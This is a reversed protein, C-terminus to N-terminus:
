MNAGFCILGELALIFWKASLLTVNMWHEGVNPSSCHQILNLDSIYNVKFPFLFCCTKATKGMNGLSFSRKTKCISCFWVATTNVQSTKYIYLFFIFINTFLCWSNLSCLIIKQRHVLVIKAFFYITKIKCMQSYLFWRKLFLFLDRNFHSQLKFAGYYATLMPLPSQSVLQM